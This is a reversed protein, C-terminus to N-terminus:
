TLRHTLTLTSRQSQFFSACIETLGDDSPVSKGAFNGITKCDKKSSVDWSRALSILDLDVVRNPRILDTTPENDM